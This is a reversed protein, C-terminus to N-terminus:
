HTMKKFIFINEEQTIKIVIKLPRPSKNTYKSTKSMKKKKKRKPSTSCSKTGEGPFSGMVGASLAQLRLWQVM